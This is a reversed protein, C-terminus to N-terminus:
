LLMSSMLLVLPQTLLHARTTCIGEWWSSLVSIYLSFFTILLVSFM